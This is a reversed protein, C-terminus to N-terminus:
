RRGVEDKMLLSDGDEEPVLHVEEHGDEQSILLCFVKRWQKMMEMLKFRDKQVLSTWGINEEKEKIAMNKADCSVPSRGSSGKSDERAQDIEWQWSITM